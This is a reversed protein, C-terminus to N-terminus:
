LNETLFKTTHYNPDSVLYNRKKQQSLDRHKRVNGMAKGFFQM